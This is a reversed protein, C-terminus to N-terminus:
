SVYYFTCEVFNSCIHLVGTSMKAAMDPTTARTYILNECCFRHWCMLSIWQAFRSLFFDAYASLKTDFEM